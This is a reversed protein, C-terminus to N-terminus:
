STTLEDLGVAYAYGAYLAVAILLLLVVYKIWPHYGPWPQGCAVCWKAKKAVHATCAKCNVMRAM